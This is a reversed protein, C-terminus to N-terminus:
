ARLVLNGDSLKINTVFDSARETMNVPMACRHYLMQVYVAELRSNITQEVGSFLGYESLMAYRIDGAYLLNVAEMVEDSTVRLIGTISTSITDATEPTAIVNNADPQSLLEPGSPVYTETTGDSKIRTVDVAETFEILKLWYAYYHVGNLVVEQRFRYNAEEETTLAEEIPVMRFPIQQHLKINTAKPKYPQALLIGGSTEVGYTGHIGIGFYRLKPHVGPALSINGNVGMVVDNNLVTPDDAPYTVAFPALNRFQFRAGQVTMTSYRTNLM